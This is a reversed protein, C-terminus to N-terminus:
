LKCQFTALEIFEARIPSANQLATGRRFKSATIGLFNVDYILMEYIFEWKYEYSDSGTHHIFYSILVKHWFHDVEEEKALKEIFEKDDPLTQWEDDLTQLDQLNSPRCRPALNCLDVLSQTVDRESTAIARKPTLCGLAILLPDGFQFRQKMEKCLTILFNRSQLRFTNLMAPHSRIDLMKIREMVGVGLYINEIRCFKAENSPDLNEVPTSSVYRNDMYAKMIKRLVLEMEYHLSAVVVSESQFLLNLKTIQPLIWILFLFYLYIFPDKLARNAQEAVLSKEGDKITDEFFTQLCLWKDVIRKVVNCFSLWRTKVVKLVM